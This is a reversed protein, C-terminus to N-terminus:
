YARPHNTTLNFLNIYKTVLHKGMVGSSKLDHGESLLRLRLSKYKRGKVLPHGALSPVSLATLANPNHDLRAEDPVIKVVSEPYPDPLENLDVFCSFAM